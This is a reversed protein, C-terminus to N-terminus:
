RENPTEKIVEYEGPYWCERHGDKEIWILSSSEHVVEVIDGVAFSSTFGKRPKIIKVKM